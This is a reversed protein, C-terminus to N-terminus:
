PLPLDPLELTQIIGNLLQQHKDKDESIRASLRYLEASSEQCPQLRNSAEFYELAKGWLENRLALRGLALLLIANNPREKLWNEATILQESVNKGRVLGYKSVLADSWHKSLTKRLLSESEADHGLKSLQCAYTEILQDDFRLSDPVQKWLQALQETARDPQAGANNPEARELESAKQVFINNWAHQELDKLHEKDAKPAKKLAPLINVLQQWDELRLYVAKLLKLLFPHNPQEKRLRLLTALCQELQNQELQIQAQAIGVVFESSSSKEYAAKLLQEAAKVDGLENAARAAGVFNIVPSDSKGAARSLLKNASGWNGELLAILGKETKQKARKSGSSGVWRRMMNKTQMLRRMFVLSFVVLILVVLHIAFMVWLNSEILWNGASIRVYGPDLTVAFSLALAIALGVIILIFFPKM